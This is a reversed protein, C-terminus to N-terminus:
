EGGSVLFSNPMFSKLLNIQEAAQQADLKRLEFEITQLCLPFCSGGERRREKGKEGEGEGEGEWVAM